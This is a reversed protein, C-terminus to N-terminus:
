TRVVRCALCMFAFSLVGWTAANLAFLTEISANHFLGPASILNLPFSLIKNSLTLWNSPTCKGWMDACAFLQGFTGIAFFYNLSAVSIAALAQIKWGCVKM